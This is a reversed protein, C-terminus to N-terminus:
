QSSEQFQEIPEPKVTVKVKGLEQLDGYVPDSMLTDMDYGETSLSEIVDNDLKDADDVFSQINSAILHHIIREFEQTAVEDIIQDGDKDLEEKALKRIESTEIEIIIRSKMKRVNSVTNISM